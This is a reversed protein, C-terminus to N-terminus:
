PSRLYSMVNEVPEFHRSGFSAAQLGNKAEGMLAMVGVVSFVGPSAYIM